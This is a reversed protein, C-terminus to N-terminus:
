RPSQIDLRRGQQHQAMVPLTIDLVGDHMSATAPYADVGEPLPVVRYFHGYPRATRRYEQPPAQMEMRRDGEITLKDNRIEVQVDERKIGPLDACVVLQNDRRAIEVPPMWNRATGQALGPIGLPRSIFRDFLNDIEESMRRMVVLPEEWVDMLRPLWSEAENQRQGPQARAHQQGGAQDPQRQGTQAM